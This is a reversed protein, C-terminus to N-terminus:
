ANAKEPITGSVNPRFRLGNKRCAKFVQWYVGLKYMAVGDAIKTLHPEQDEHPFPPDVLYMTWFYAGGEPVFVPKVVCIWDQHM